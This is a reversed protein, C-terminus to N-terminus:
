CGARAESTARTSVQVSKYVSPLYYLNRLDMGSWYNLDGLVGLDEPCVTAGVNGGAGVCHTVLSGINHFNIPLFLAYVLGATTPL